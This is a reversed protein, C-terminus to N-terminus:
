VMSILAPKLKFNNSDIPQNRIRSYNENMMPRWCGCLKPGRIGPIENQDSHGDSFKEGNQDEMETNDAKVKKLKFLKREIEPNFSM